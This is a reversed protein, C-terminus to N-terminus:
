DKKIYSLLHPREDKLTTPEGHGPYIKINDQYTLIKKISEQMQSFNGSPLDCRGIAGQFIFDGCFLKENFLLSILDNKHGPTRIMEFSFNGIVNQGEKLNQYDYVPINNKSTLDTLAGIHDFHYHTIIIGVINGSCNQIILDADEAPDIILIDKEKQLIYCNTELFGIKLTKINM